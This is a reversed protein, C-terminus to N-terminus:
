KKHRAKRINKKRLHERKAKARIYKKREAFIRLQNVSM